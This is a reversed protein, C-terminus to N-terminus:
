DKWLIPQITKPIYLPHEPHGDKTRRLCYAGKGLLKLVADDRYFAHGKTGWALM